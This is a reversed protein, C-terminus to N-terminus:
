CLETNLNRLRSMKNLILILMFIATINVASFVCYECWAKLVFAQISVFYGSFLVGLFSLVLIAKNPMSRREMLCKLAEVFLIAYMILGLLSIPIGFFESYKSTLVVDCSGSINCVVSGNLYHTLTLYGADIIGLISLTLIIIQIIRRSM